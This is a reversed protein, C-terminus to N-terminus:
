RVSTPKTSASPRIKISSMALAPTSNIAAPGIIFVKTASTSVRIRFRLPGPPSPDFDEDKALLTSHFQLTPGQGNVHSAWGSSWMPCTWGSTTNETAANPQPQSANRPQQQAFLIGALVLLVALVLVLFLNLRKM